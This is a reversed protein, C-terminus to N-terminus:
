EGDSDELNEEVVVNEDLVDEELIDEELTEVEKPAETFLKAELAAQGEDEFLDLLKKNLPTTKERNFKDIQLHVINQTATKDDLAIDDFLALKVKSHSLHLVPLLSVLVVVDLLIFLMALGTTFDADFASFILALIALPLLAVLCIGYHVLDNAILTRKGTKKLSELSSYLVKAGDLNPYTDVLYAPSVMFYKIGLLFAAMLIISPIIFIILLITYGTDGVMLMGMYGFLASFGILLLILVFIGLKIFVQMLTVLMYTWYSRPKDATTITASIVVDKGDRLQKTMRVSGMDTIPKVFICLTAFFNVVMFLLYKLFNSFRKLDEFSSKFSEKFYQKFGRNM